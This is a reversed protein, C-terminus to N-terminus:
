IVLQYMHIYTHNDIYMHIYTYVTYVYAYAYYMMICTEGLSTSVLWFNYGVLVQDISWISKKKKESWTKEVLHSITGM